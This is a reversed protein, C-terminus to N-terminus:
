VLYNLVTTTIWGQKHEEKCCAWHSVKVHGKERNFETEIMECFSERSPFKGMDAQSYTVLYQRRGARPDEIM